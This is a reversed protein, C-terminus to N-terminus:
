RQVFVVLDVLREADVLSERPARPRATVDIAISNSRRTTMQTAGRQCRFTRTFLTIPFRVIRPRVMTLKKPILLANVVNWARAASVSAASKAGYM